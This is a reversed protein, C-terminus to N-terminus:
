IPVLGRRIGIAVAETRSGAALKGLIQTVHFKATHESIGLNAAIEKNGLGDALMRLVQLERPTLPEILAARQISERGRFGRRVQAQTLVTLDATAAVVAAIIEAASANLPLVGRVSGEPVTTETDDSLVVTPPGPPLENVPIGAAVLVDILLADDDLRHPPGYQLVEIREEEVLVEALERARAVSNALIAIRIL